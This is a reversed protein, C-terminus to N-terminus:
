KVKIDGKTDSNLNKSSPSKGTIAKKAKVLSQKVKSIINNSQKQVPKAPAEKPVERSTTEKSEIEEEKKASEEEQQEFKSALTERVPEKVAASIEDVKSEGKVEKKDEICETEPTTSAKAHTPEEPKNIEIEAERPVAILAEEPEQEKAAVDEVKEAISATAPAHNEKEEDIIDSSVQEVLKVDQAVENQAEDAVSTEKKSCDEEVVKEAVEEEHYTEGANSTATVNTEDQKKTNEALVQQKTETEEVQSLEGPKEEVEDAKEPVAATELKLSEEPVVTATKEPSHVEDVTEAIVTQSKEEEQKEPKIPNEDVKGTPLREAKETEASGEEANNTEELTEVEPEPVADANVQKEEKESNNTEEVTEASHEPVAAANAQEEEEIESSQKEPEKPAEEVETVLPETKETEASEAEDSNKDKLVEEESVERPQEEEEVTSPNEADQPEEKTAVPELKEEKEASPELIQKEKVVEQEQAAEAPEERTTEEEVEPKDLQTAVLEAESKEEKEASPEPIQKEKVVEQEQEPEAPEEQTTEEKAEPKDLQTAVLEAEPKEEKEVSQELVKSEKAVELKEITETSAEPLSEEELKKPTEHVQTASIESEKVENVSDEQVDIKEPQKEQEKEIKVVPETPPTEELEPIMTVSEPILEKNTLNVDQLASDDKKEDEEGSPVEHHKADAPSDNPKEEEHEISKDIAEAEVETKSPPSAEEGQADDTKGIKDDGDENALSAIMEAIAENKEKKVIQEDAIVSTHDSAAAETAM